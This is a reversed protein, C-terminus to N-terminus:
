SKLHRVPYVTEELWLTTDPKYAPFDRFISHFCNLSYLRLAHRDKLVLETEHVSPGCPLPVAENSQPCEKM